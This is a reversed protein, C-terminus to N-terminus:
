LLDDIYGGNSKMIVTEGGISKKDVKKELISKTTLIKKYIKPVDLPFKM